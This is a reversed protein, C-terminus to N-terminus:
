GVVRNKLTINREVKQTQGEVEQKVICTISCIGNGHGVLKKYHPVFLLESVNRAVLSAKSKIKTEIRRLNKKHLEWRIKKNGQKWCLSTPGIPQEWCAVDSPARAIDHALADHAACLQCMMGSTKSFSILRQQMTTAFHFIGTLVSTILFFYILWEILTFGKQQMM